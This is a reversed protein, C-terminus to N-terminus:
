WIIILIILSTFSPMFLHLFLYCSLVFLSGVTSFFDICFVFSLNLTIIYFYQHFDFQIQFLSSRFHSSCKFISYVTDLDGFIGGAWWGESLIVKPFPTDQVQSPLGSKKRECDPLPFLILLPGSCPCVLYRDCSLSSHTLHHPCWRSSCHMNKDYPPLQNDHCNQSAIQMKVVGMPHNARRFHSTPSGQHENLQNRM